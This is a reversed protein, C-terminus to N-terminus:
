LVPDNPDIDDLVDRGSEDVLTSVSVDGPLSLGVEVFADAPSDALVEISYPGSECSGTSLYKQKM